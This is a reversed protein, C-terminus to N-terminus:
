QFDLHQISNSRIIFLSKHCHLCYDDLTPTFSKLNRDYYPKEGVYLGLSTVDTDIGTKSEFCSVCLYYKDEPLKYGMFYVTRISDVISTYSLPTNARTSTGADLNEESKTKKNPLKEECFLKRKVKLIDKREIKKYKFVKNPANMEELTKRIYNVYAQTM